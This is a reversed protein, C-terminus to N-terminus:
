PKNFFYRMWYERNFNTRSHCRKCLLVLNDPDCNLKDYDVHHTAYSGNVHTNCYQCIGKDRLFVYKKLKENFEDPYPFRSKMMGHLEYFDKDFCPHNFFSETFQLGRRRGCEIQHNRFGEPDNEKWIKLPSFGNKFKERMVLGGKLGKVRQSESYGEPDREKFRIHMLKAINNNLMRERAKDAYHSNTWAARGKGAKSQHASDQNLLELHYYRPRIPINYRVMWNKITVRSVNCISALQELTYDFGWYQEILWNSDKYEMM